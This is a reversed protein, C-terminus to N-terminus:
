DKALITRREPWGGVLILGVLAVSTVGAGAIFTAASGYAAWLAGALVSAILVAIGGSFNFVGFATGRLDTPATDAVLSAFLGQTLAM